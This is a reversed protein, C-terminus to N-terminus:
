FSIGYGLYLSAGDYGKYPSWDISIELNNDLYPVKFFSGLGYYIADIDDDNATPHRSNFYCTSYNSFCKSVNVYPVLYDEVYYGIGVAMKWSWFHGTKYKDNIIEGRGFIGYDSNAIPSIGSVYAGLAEGAKIRHLGLGFAFIAENSQGIAADDKLYEYDFDNKDLDGAAYVPGAILVIIMGLILRIM